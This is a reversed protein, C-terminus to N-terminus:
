GLLPEYQAQQRKDYWCMGMGGGALAVLIIMLAGFIVYFLYRVKSAEDPLQQMASVHVSEMEGKVRASDGGYKHSVDVTGQEFGFLCEKPCWQPDATDAMQAAEESMVVGGMKMSQGNPVIVWFDFIWEGEYGMEELLQKTHSPAHAATNKTIKFKHGHAKLNAHITDLLGPVTWTSYAFHNDMWRDQGCYENTIVSEHTEMLLAEMDAVSFDGFTSESPRQTFQVEIHSQQLAIVVSRMPGNVDAAKKDLIVKGGLTHTYFDSLKQANASAMSVRVPVIDANDERNWPYPDAMQSFTCRPILEQRWLSVSAYNKPKTLSIFEFQSLSDPAHVLVSYFTGDFSADNIASTDLALDTPLSWELGIMELPADATAWHDLYDDLSRVWFAVNFDFFADYATDSTFANKWKARMKNELTQVSLLGEDYRTQPAHIKFCTDPLEMKCQYACEGQNFKTAGEDYITPFIAYLSACDRYSDTTAMATKFTM